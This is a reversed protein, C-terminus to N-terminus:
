VAHHPRAHADANAFVAAPVHWLRLERQHQVPVHLDDTVARAVVHRRAVDLAFVREVQRLRLDIIAAARDARRDEDAGFIREPVDRDAQADLAAAFGHELPLRPARLHLAREAVQRAIQTALQAKGLAREQHRARA